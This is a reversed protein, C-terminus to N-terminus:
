ALSAVYIKLGNANEDIFQKIVKAAPEYLQIALVWGQADFDPGLRWQLSPFQDDLADQLKIMLDLLQPEQSAMENKWTDIEALTAKVSQAVSVTPDGRISFSDM